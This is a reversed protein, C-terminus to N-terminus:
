GGGEAAKRYGLSRLVALCESWAPFPRRKERKYRDMAAAFEVEDATYDIESTFLSGREGKKRRGNGKPPPSPSDSM